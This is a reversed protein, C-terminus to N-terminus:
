TGALSPTLSDHISDSRTAIGVLVILRGVLFSVLIIDEWGEM